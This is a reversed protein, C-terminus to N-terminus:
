LFDFKETMVGLFTSTFGVVVVLFLIFIYTDLKQLFRGWSIVDGRTCRRLIRLEKNGIIDFVKAQLITYFTLLTSIILMSTLYIIFYSVGLSNHPLTDIVITEFIGYALFISVSFSCKEGSEIPILFTAGSLLSLMLVPLILTFMTFGGRREVTFIFNVMNDTRKIEATLNVLKWQANEIYESLDVEGDHKLSVTSNDEDAIFYTLTCTQLDFPYFKITM